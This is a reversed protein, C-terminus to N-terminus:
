YVSKITIVRSYSYDRNRFLYRYDGLPEFRLPARAKNFHSARGFEGIEEIYGMDIPHGNSYFKGVKKLDPLVISITTPDMLYVKDVYAVNPFIIDDGFLYLPEEGLINIPQGVARCYDSLNDWIEGSYPNGTYFFELYIDIM